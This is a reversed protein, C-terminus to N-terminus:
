EIYRHHQSQNFNNIPQQFQQQNQQQRQNPNLIGIINPYSQAAKQSGQVNLMQSAKTSQINHTHGNMQSTPQGFFSKQQAMGGQNMMQGSPSPLSSAYPSIPAGIPSMPSQLPSKMPKSPKYLDSFSRPPVQLQGNLDSPSLSTNRSRNPPGMFQNKGDSMQYDANQAFPPSM